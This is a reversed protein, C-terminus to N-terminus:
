WARRLVEAVDAAGSPLDITCGLQVAEDYAAEAVAEIGTMGGAVVERLRTPLRLTACLEELRVAAAEARGAPDDGPPVGMATAIVGQAPLTAPALFRMVAPLLVCSTLGHPVDWRSGVQHALLHSLRIASRGPRVIAMWAGVQCEARAELDEPDISAPLSAVLRRLGEVALTTMLPHPRVCWIAEMAHDVAKIGTSAWLGQPTWAAVRPDLVVAGPLARPDVSVVKRQTREDTTGIGATFAGGSLTTPVAVQAAPKGAGAAMVSAAKITDCVSGGGLGVVVDAGSRVLLEAVADVSASPSHERCGVFSGALSGGLITCVEDFLPTATLLSPSTVVVSRRAGMRDVLDAILDLSGVGSVVVQPASTAFENSQDLRSGSV